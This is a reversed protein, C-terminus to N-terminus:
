QKVFKANGVVQGTRNYGALTYVGAPLNTVDLEIVTDTGTSVSAIRRGLLNHIDVRSVQGPNEIRLMDKVPNPSILMQEVEPTFVGTPTCTGKGIVMDDFYSTVDKGTADIGLDFFITLRKYKADDPVASFDFVLEEWENIKTNKVPLEINQAPPVSQSAELKVAFNGIHDMLVKARIKKEGKFDIPADLDAYMGAWPAGDSAKIFEGVKASTNIGAKKPNDVVTFLKGKAELHGNAFYRFNSISMVPSEYTNFCGTYGARSWRMDDIYYNEVVGAHDVGGNFFICFRRHNKGAQDSFDVEYKEWDNAVKGNVWVEKAPSTGGELKFLMPTAAAPAHIVTHFQNHVSLDIGNPFEVCLAAWPQNPQDKYLGVKTSNNVPGLKPNNVVSILDKGAGFQYNRQCEFDDILNAIAVVGECPDITTPGLTVNDFFFMAGSEAKGPNFIVKAAVWDTIDKHASFDFSLTEWSGPTKLNRTVEKNGKSISELQMIVNVSGAPALVDVNFQSRDKINIIGPVVAALTSFASTGKTYKGVRNTTNVGTKSPNDAVVFSGHLVTNADLPAWPLVAGAEFHEILVIQREGFEIDDIYYVDGAAPKQGPNFFLVIKKHQAAAQDSFDANYQVWQNTETIDVNVEKAPSAGGELKVLVKTAKPSYVKFRFQNKKSLDIPNKYEIMIHGWEENQHDVYKGVKASQNVPNSGPNNVVTLSDWGNSWSANRNCEFDDLMDPKLTVGACANPVACLNDFYYDGGSTDVGPDFFLVVKQLHKADKASSFDFTYEQWANRVVIPKIKEIAPGGTGELKLLVNTARDSYVQLKFQNMVSLDMPKGYDALLLSYGHQKSKTYKAVKASSNIINPKPNAVAMEIAGDAANWPLAAAPEFTEYCEKAEVGVIDDWFFTEEVGPLFSHFSILVKTLGTPNAAGKTLDFTYEVWQNAVTVDKFQEVAPGSGEFKLLLKSPAIPSWVKVKVLGYKAMDAPAKLNAIAFNFDSAKNTKYSGVSDSTNIGTKHPNVIVGNYTGNIGVWPLKGKDEFNEYVIQAQLWILCLFLTLLTLISKKM